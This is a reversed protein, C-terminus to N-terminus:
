GSHYYSAFDRVPTPKLAEKPLAVVEKLARLLSTKQDATDRELKLARAAGRREKMLVGLKIDNALQKESRPKPIIATGNKRRRLLKGFKLDAARAEKELTLKKLERVTLKKEPIFQPEDDEDIGPLVYVVNPKNKSGKPRGRTKKVPSPPPSPSPTDVEEVEEEEESDSFVPAVPEKPPEARRSHPPPTKPTKPVVKSKTRSIVIPEPEDESEDVESLSTDSEDVDSTQEQESQLDIKEDDSKM